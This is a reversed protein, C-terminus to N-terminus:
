VWYFRKKQPTPPETKEYEDVNIYDLSVDEQLETVEEGTQSQEDMKAQRLRCNHLLQLLSELPMTQPDEFYHPYQLRRQQVHQEVLPCLIPCVTSYGALLPLKSIEQLYRENDAYSEAKYQALLLSLTGVLLLQVQTMTSSWTPTTPSSPAVVTSPKSGKKTDLDVFQRKPPAPLSATQKLARYRLGGFVVTFFGLGYLFGVKWNYYQFRHCLAKEADNLQDDNYSTLLPTWIMAAVIRERRHPDRPDDPQNLAAQFEADEDPPPISKRSM